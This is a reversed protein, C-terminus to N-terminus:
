FQELFRIDGEFFHRIDDVGYKLMAMREIGIGFAWGGVEEPDYDVMRLVNPHVMGCGLVELWGEYSCVRCGDGDCLMCSIDLEASPETFPFYSPRFRLGRDAGFLRRAALGLTGKLDAFTIKRDILLGEIQHFMPSHTVDYDVRYVKGPAIVRVPPRRSEMTRIQVSSTQTRLLIDSNIYFTDQMDRAPHHPPINLAEFNYYDTEIEPGEVVEFGLGIFVEQIEEIVQTLPHIGGTAPKKGPLTVDIREKVLRNELDAEVLEDRRVQLKETLEDRVANVMQGVAPRDEPKLNGMSRLLRTLEGKKGLYAVRVSELEKLDAVKEVAQLAKTKVAEIEDTM